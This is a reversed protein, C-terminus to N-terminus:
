CLIPSFIIRSFFLYQYFFHLFNGLSLNIIRIGEHQFAGESILKDYDALLIDERERGSRLIEEYRKGIEAAGINSIFIFITERYDVGDVVDRYDLIPKIDSLIGSSM